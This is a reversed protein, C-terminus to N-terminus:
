ENELRFIQVPDSFPDLKVFNWYGEWTYSAGSILETVTFPRSDSRGAAAPSFEIWGEHTHEYSLNVVVLVINSGDRNWKSFAIIQDNDTAHFRINRTQRLAPNTKRIANIGAIYPALSRPDDVDWRRIEYKESDLYEESDPERPTAEQLEFAPGYIGYNSSMTAALGLRIRFAPTGGAQLYEHLIDPTNPWFNPRYFEAVETRTLETLYAELEAKTTRWTFYTYSQTFGM